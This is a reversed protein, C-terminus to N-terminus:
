VHPKPDLTENHPFLPRGSAAVAAFAPGAEPEASVPGSALDQRVLGRWASLRKRPVGHRRAVESMRKASRFSERVMRAREEATWHRPPRRKATAGLDEGGADEVPLEAGEGREIDQM